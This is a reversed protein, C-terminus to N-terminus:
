NELLNVNWAALGRALQRLFILKAYGTLPCRTDINEVVTMRENNKEKNQQFTIKTAYGFPVASRILPEPAIPPNPQGDGRM